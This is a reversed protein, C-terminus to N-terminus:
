VDEIANRKRDKLNKFHSPTLGTTKKFQNSLHAVSSYHMKCAIETLNLEDYIILEKVREIKHLIIFKEITTGQVESFLKAMYTYDLNLKEALYDSFNTKPLEESYHVMEIIINKIKEILMSKKDDMLELGSQHLAVKIQERQGATINEMIDVEGMDVIFHLGLKNLVEKVTIKCRNSVM